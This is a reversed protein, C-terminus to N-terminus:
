LKVLKFSKSGTDSQLRLLYVGEPMTRLDILGNYDSGAPIREQNLLRGHLDTISYSMRDTSAGRIELRFIGSSPNPYVTVNGLMSSEEMGVLADINVNDIFLSNGYGNINVFRVVVTNGIWSNMLVTDKRWETASTPTWIVGQDPVTALDEGGKYYVNQVWTQGCDTSIDIRLSDSYTASYRAYAVDFTLHATLATQLDLEMTLLADEAGVNNYDFNNVYSANTPSGSAGPIGAADQWTFAGGADEINWGAPPYTGTQFDEVLPVAAPALIQMLAPQTVTSGGFPNTATLTVDYAGASNFVVQPNQSTASTGNVFTVTSPTFAWNWGTPSNLSQDTFAFVKGTCGTQSNVLFAPVPPASSEVINIDDLGIDSTFSSGTKARFRINVIEGAWPILNVVAQLWQNGQNGSFAPIVDNTWSGQSFIDVHLEGMTAGNMHYWFIMQPSAANSLDICPTILLAAKQFCASSELYVYKGAATGLTHDNDPGTNTTPTAGSHTRFDIDDQDLNTANTWGNPLACVTTECDSTTACPTASQFDEIFPLPMLQGGIVVVESLATDNYQNMDGPYEAWAQLAYTGTLSLDITSSFTFLQTSGPNLTGTFTENIPPNGNLIFSVPIGTLPNQGTNELLVSVPVASNDHCDLLIGAAPSGFAALEADLPLPCAFAGPAKYIANARRGSNGEATTASVSFWYGSNPNTGTVIASTNTSSEVPEMFKQGLKYVTYGAAGNVANWSLKVSDPCAWDVTIGTPLNIIALSTDSDDSFGNRSVKVKVAGSVTNPVTWNYQQVNQPVAAAITNWTAGNDATYELLYDGQDREGDWRLVETQGPVLGEGGNPYTVTLEENRFEWVIYYQQVGSPVAYGNVTLTYDGPSPNDITVQEMNNLSDVGRIAPASLNAAVPTPDLIWPNWTTATPDTLSFDLNNVLSVAATPSGGPDAWYIMARLRSTGAPVSITHTQITGQSVSDLLYRGEELTRIARLANVRGWGYTFDPGPNGIDEATNLLAAKILPAPATATNNMEKYAQYLQAFIGAIGPSAASTGGGVQYTNNEDTSMQDKGNACIDPKIRGDAAPGRSSSNDLVELPDLNGCAIVNKGQKYGGTINGWGAGAGYNCNGSGNNGGSFVFQLYPNEFLLQDGFQTDATYENCGQSYSTSAVTIGYTAYNSLANVVQTYGGINFTVLDSGTAMGRKTPDLNGAGVAIGSCMDGHTSGNGTALNTIRGEFDIHPGVFGDDAVAVTVGRGDYHRGSAYDSNIVNSRHLSRGKTDEKESPAAITNVFNVWPASAIAMLSQDSVRMVLMHNSEQHGLIRGFSSAALLVKAPDLHPRYQVNLDVTGKELVAWEQFGGTINRSVKMAPEQVFVSRIGFQSLLNRNYRAPIATLYTNTPVYDMLVLGSKRIEAMQEKGPLANFQIYRYYYGNFEAAPAPSALFSSLNPEPHVTGSQFYVPQAKMVHFSLLTLLFLVQKKM